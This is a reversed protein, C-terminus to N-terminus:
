IIEYGKDNDSYKIYKIIYNDNTEVGKINLNNAIEVYKPKRICQSTLVKNIIKNRKNEDYYYVQYGYLLCPKCLCNKVYDKSTNLFDGLIKGSDCIYLINDKIAIIKNSKKRKTDNTEKLGTHSISQRKRTSEVM